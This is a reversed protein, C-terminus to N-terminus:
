QQARRAATVLRPYYKITLGLEPDDANAPFRIVRGDVDYKQEPMLLVGEYVEVSGPIPPLEMTVELTYHQNTGSVRRVRAWNPTVVGFTLFRVSVSWPRARGVESWLRKYPSM